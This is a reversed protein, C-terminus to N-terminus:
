RGQLQCIFITNIAMLDGALEKSDDSTDDALLVIIKTGNLQFVYSLLDFAFQYLHDRQILII